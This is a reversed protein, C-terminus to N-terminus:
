FARGSKKAAELEEKSVPYVKASTGVLKQVKGLAAAEVLVDGAVADVRQGTIGNAVVCSIKLQVAEAPDLGVVTPKNQDGIASRLSAIEIELSAIKSDRGGLSERLKGIEAELAPVTQAKSQAVATAQNAAELGLELEAIRDDKPDTKAM